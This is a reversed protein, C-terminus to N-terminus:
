SASQTFVPNINVNRDSLLGTPAQNSPSVDVREAGAEGVVLITPENIVGHYGTALYKVGAGSIGVHITISKGKLHDIASQLDEVASQADEASSQIDEFSSVIDGSADSAATTIDE